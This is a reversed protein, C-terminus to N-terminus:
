KYKDYFIKRKGRVRCRVSHVFKTPAQCKYKIIIPCNICLHFISDFLTRNTDSYIINRYLNYDYVTYENILQYM